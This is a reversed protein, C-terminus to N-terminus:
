VNGDEKSTEHDDANITEPKNEAGCIPCYNFQFISIQNCISCVYLNGCKKWIGRRITEGPATEEYNTITAAGIPVNTLSQLCADLDDVLFYDIHRGYYRKNIFDFMTIPYPIRMKLEKARAFIMQARISDAAVIVSNGRDKACDKIIQTTKGAVRPLYYIKM